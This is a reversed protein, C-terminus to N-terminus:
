PPTLFAPYGTEMEMEYSLVFLSPPMGKVAPNAASSDLEGRQVTEM